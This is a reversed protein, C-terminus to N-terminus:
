VWWLRILFWATLSYAAIFAAIAVRSLWLVVRRLLQELEVAKRERKLQQERVSNKVQSWLEASASSSDMDKAMKVTYGTLKRVFETEALDSVASFVRTAIYNHMIACVLSLWLLGVIILTEHLTKTVWWPRPEAKLMVAVIISAAVAMSGANLTSLKEFFSVSFELSDREAEKREKFSPAIDERFRESQEDSLVVPPLANVNAIEDKMELKGEFRRRMQHELDPISSAILTVLLRM